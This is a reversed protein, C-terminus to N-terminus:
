LLRMGTRTDNEDTIYMVNRFKNVHSKYVKRALKEDKIYFEIYECDSILLVIQCSSKSFEEFSNFSSIEEDKKYAELRLFVIFHDSKILEELETGSYIDKEFFVKGDLRSWVEEQDIPRYWNYEEINIPSLVSNLLCSRTQEAEFSVGRIGM